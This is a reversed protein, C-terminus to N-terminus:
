NENSKEGWHFNFTFQMPTKGRVQDVKLDTIEQMARLRDLMKLFAQNDRAVGSCTVSSLDHIELTKATVVGEEPFAETVKRLISLSPMSDDFWPRFTKIQQQLTKLEKVAPEMSTWERQFKSLYYEQVAFAGGVLLALLAAAAGIWALKRSSIRATLEQWPRAKPLLLEVVPGPGTLYQAAGSLAASVPTAAPLRKSFEDSRYQEVWEVKLGTAELRPSIESSFRRVVDGSGFIKIRRLRDRFAAPLQGCTIRIERALFNASIVKPGGESEFAEDLSRLAVIGGGFTIQLDVTDEGVVLALVGESDPNAPNQLATIALSVSALKLQAAKLVTEVQLVHNRSIAISAAYQKGEGYSFRHTSMHLGDQGSSFAREAEIQLYSEVDEIPLDPIEVLLFMVSSVPLCAVCRRERLEASDLHNRIERGALQPDGTFPNLALPASVSQQINLSGNSRRAVVGELRGKDVALGLITAPKKKKFLRIM